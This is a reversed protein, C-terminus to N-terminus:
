DSSSDNGCGVSTVVCCLKVMNDNRLDAQPFPETLDSQTLTNMLIAVLIILSM